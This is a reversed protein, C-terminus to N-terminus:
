LNGALQAATVLIGTSPQSQTLLNQGHNTDIDEPNAATFTVEEGVCAPEPSVTIEATPPTGPDPAWALATTCMLCCVVLALPLASRYTGQMM